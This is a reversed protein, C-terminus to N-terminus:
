NVKPHNWRNKLYIGNIVWSLPNLSLVTDILFAYKNNLLILVKFISNIAVLILGIQLDEQCKSLIFVNGLTLGLWGYIRWWAFGIDSHKSKDEPNVIDEKHKLHKETNKGSIGLPQTTATFNLTHHGRNIKISIKDKKYKKAIEDAHAIDQNNNIHFGNYKIIVDNVKIGLKEAPSGQKISTIHFRKNPKNAPDSQKNQDPKQRELQQPPPETGTQKATNTAKLKKGCKACFLDGETTETGCQTCFM